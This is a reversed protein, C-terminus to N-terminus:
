QRQGHRETFGGLEKRKAIVAREAEEITDYQGCYHRKYKSTVGGVWKQRKKNYYVGTVMSTNNRKKKANKANESRSVERLNSIRNDDRIGNEHDIEEPMYGHAHLYIIRHADYKKKNIKGRAYKNRDSIFAPQGAFRANWSNHHRDTKFHHRGRERWTLTGAEYDADLLERIIAQTLEM